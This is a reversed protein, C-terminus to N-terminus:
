SIHIDMIYVNPIHIDITAQTTETSGSTPTEINGTSQIPTISPTSEQSSDGGCACLSLLAIALMILIVRKTNFRM